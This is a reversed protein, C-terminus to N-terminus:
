EQQGSPAGGSGVGQGTGNPIVFCERQIDVQGDSKLYVANGVHSYGMLRPVTCVTDNNNVVRWTNPVLRNYRHAFAKNGVRPSGYNYCVM